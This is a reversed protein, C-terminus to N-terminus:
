EKNKLSKAFGLLHTGVLVADAGAEIDAITKINSAQCLWGKWLARAEAFTEKKLGGSTLDRSNWVARLNSPISKLEQLTLPEILCKNLHTKPIRGVVLIWDAGLDIAQQVMKDDRHIGKALIPKQTLKRAKQLLEFSGHWRNDTHISIIDGIEDAVKFLEDWTNNSSWSFPSHTKVEAIIEIKKGQLSYM